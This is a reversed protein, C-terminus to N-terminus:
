PQIRDSKVPVYVTQSTTFTINIKLSICKENLVTWGNHHARLVFAARTRVPAAKENTWAVGLAVTGHEGKSREHSVTLRVARRIQISFLLWTM